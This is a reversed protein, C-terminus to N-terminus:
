MKMYLAGYLEQAIGSRGTRRYEYDVAEILDQNGIKRHEAAARYAATLAASKIGSGTLEAEKSYVAFDIGEELPAEGPFVKEWLALREEEGPQEVPIMFTMRRKFANDFNQM